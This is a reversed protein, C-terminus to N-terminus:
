FTVTSWESFWRVRADQLFVQNKSGSSFPWVDQQLPLKGSRGLCSDRFVCCVVLQSSFLGTSGPSATGTSFKGLGNGLLWKCQLDNPVTQGSKPSFTRRTRSASDMLGCFGCSQQSQHSKRSTPNGVLVESFTCCSGGSSQPDIRVPLQGSDSAFCVGRWGGNLESSRHESAHCSFVFVRRRWKLGCM